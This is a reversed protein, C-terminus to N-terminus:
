RRQPTRDDSEEHGHIHGDGKPSHDHAPDELSSSPRTDPGEPTHGESSGSESSSRSRSKSRAKELEEKLRQVQETLKEKEAIAADKWEKFRAGDQARDDRLQEREADFKVRLAELARLKDVEAQLTSTRLENELERGRRREAEAEGQADGLSRQADALEQSKEELEDRAERLQRQLEELEKSGEENMADDRSTRTRGSRLRKERTLSGKGAEATLAKLERQSM